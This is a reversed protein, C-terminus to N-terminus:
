TKVVLHSVVRHVGSTQLALGVAQGIQEAFRVKGSLTVEGNQCEVSVDFSSLNKEVVYKGKLVTVIRADDMREGVAIARTRVVRGTKALEDRINEPTLEWEEVKAAMAGRADVAMKQSREAFASAREGFTTPHTRQYYRWAMAGGLVGVLLLIFVTKM